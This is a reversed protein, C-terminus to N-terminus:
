LEGGQYGSVVDEVGAVSEFDKEICWFCGGAFYAQSTEAFAGSSSTLAIISAAAFLTKRIPTM